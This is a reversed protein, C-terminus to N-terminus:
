LSRWLRKIEKHELTKFLLAIKYRTYYELHMGRTKNALGELNHRLKGLDIQFPEFGNEFLFDIGNKIDASVLGKFIGGGVRNGDVVRQAREEIMADSLAKSETTETWVSGLCRGYDLNVPEIDHNLKNIIFTFNTANGKRDENGVLMDFAAQKIIFAKFDKDSETREQFMANLVNLIDSNDGNEIVNHIFDDHNIMAGVQNQKSLIFEHCGKEVFHDSITGTYTKGNANVTEFHYIVSKLGIDSSELLQSVVAESVSPYLVDFSNVTYKLNRKPNLADLKVYKNFLRDETQLIVTGKFQVGEADKLGFNGKINLAGNSYSCIATCCDNCFPISNIFDQM